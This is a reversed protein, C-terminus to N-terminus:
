AECAHSSGPAATIEPETFVIDSVRELHLDLMRYEIYKDILASAASSFNNRYAMFALLMGISLKADIVALAGMWIIVVHELGFLLQNAAGFGIDLKALRVDANLKDALLNQWMGHRQAERGFLRVSQTGRITELLNTDK